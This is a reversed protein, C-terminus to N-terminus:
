YSELSILNRERETQRDTQVGQAVSCRLFKEAIEAVTILEANKKNRVRYAERYKQFDKCLM